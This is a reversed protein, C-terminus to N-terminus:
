SAGQFLLITWKWIKAASKGLTWDCSIQEAGVIYWARNQIRTIGLSHPQDSEKSTRYM